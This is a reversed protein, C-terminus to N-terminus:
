RMQTGVKPAQKLPEGLEKSNMIKLSTMFMANYDKHSMSNGHGGEMVKLHLAITDNDHLLLTGCLGCHHYVYSVVCLIVIFSPCSSCLLVLMVQLSVLPSYIEKYEKINIKHRNM